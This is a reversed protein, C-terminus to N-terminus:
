VQIQNLIMSLVSAPWTMLRDSRILFRSTFVASASEPNSFDLSLQSLYYIMVCLLIVIVFETAIFNSMVRISFYDRVVPLVFFSM